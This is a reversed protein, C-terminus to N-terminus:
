ENESNGTMMLLEALLSFVTQRRGGQLFSFQPMQKKHTKFFSNSDDQM